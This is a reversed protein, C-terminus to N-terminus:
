ASRARPAPASRCAPRHPSGSWRREKTTSAAAEPSRRPSASSAARRSVHTSARGRTVSLKFALDGSLNLQAGIAIAAQLEASFGLQMMKAKASGTTRVGAKFLEEIRGTLAGCSPHYCEFKMAAHQEFGLMADFEANLSRPGVDHTSTLRKIRMAAFESGFSVPDRIDESLFAVEQQLQLFFDEGMQYERQEERKQLLTLVRQTKELYENQQELWAGSEVKV